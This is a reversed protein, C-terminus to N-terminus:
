LVTQRIELAGYICGFDAEYINIIRNTVEDVEQICSDGGWEIIWRLITDNAM